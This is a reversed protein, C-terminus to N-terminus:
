IRDNRDYQPPRGAGSSEFLGSPYLNEHDGRPTNIASRDVALKRSFPLTCASQKAVTLRAAASVPHTGGDAAQAHM